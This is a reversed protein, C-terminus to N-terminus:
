KNDMNLNYKVYGKLQYSSLVTQATLSIKVEPLLEERKLNVFNMAQGCAILKAGRDELATILKYNPNNTKFKLLYVENKTISRLASGHLVIVPFIKKLPIGSAVHLNIIRAIEVLAYNEESASSDPNQFTVEFLLKYDIKPDPIETPDTVPIVGSYKTGTAKDISPYISIKSLHDWRMQEAYQKEMKLSDAHIMARLASDKKILIPNDAATQAFGAFCIIM